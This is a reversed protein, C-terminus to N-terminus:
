PEPYQPEFRAGSYRSSRACLLPLVCLGPFPGRRPKGDRTADFMWAARIFSDIRRRPQEHWGINFAARKPFFQVESYPLHDHIWWAMAQWDAGEAYRDAFWPVVVTALAGMCGHADRRDWIHRAYNRKNSACSLGHANGFANVAPSRYASRIALRGFTAQLPELLEVCLYQGAAIALAPDDPINSIGYLEAIESHLFDRMFFSSSLRVRGLQELSRVSAPKRM